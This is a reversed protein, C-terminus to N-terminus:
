PIQYTSQPNGAPDALTVTDNSRWKTQLAGIFLQYVSDTGAKSYVRILADPYLNIAPFQYVLQNDNQLTWGLLLIAEDGTNKIQIHENDPDGAGVVLVIQLSDAVQDGSPLDIELPIRTPTPATTAITNPITTPIFDNLYRKEIWKGAIFFVSLTVAINLLLYLALKKINKM